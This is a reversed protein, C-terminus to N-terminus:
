VVCISKVKTHFDDMFGKWKVGADVVEGNSYRLMRVERKNGYCLHMYVLDEKDVAYKVDTTYRDQAINIMDQVFYFYQDKVDFVLILENFLSVKIFCKRSKKLFFLKKFHKYPFNMNKINEKEIM